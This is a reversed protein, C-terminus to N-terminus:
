NGRLKEVKALNLPPCNNACTASTTVMKEDVDKVELTDCSGDRFGRCVSLGPTSTKLRTLKEALNVRLYAPPLM